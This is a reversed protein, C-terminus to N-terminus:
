GREEPILTGLVHVVAFCCEAYRGAEDRLSLVTILHRLDDTSLKDMDNTVGEIAKSRMARLKAIDLGLRDITERAAPDGDHSPYIAGDGAFRFRTECDASLPSVLRQEDYWNDKLKGCHLPERRETQRQCSCLLNAYVLADAEFPVQPKFHEIHSDCDSVRKGCYCCIFGQEAMLTAHLNRKVLGSLADWTPQWNENASAKWDKLDQPEEGKAIHKM